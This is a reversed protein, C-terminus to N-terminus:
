RKRRGRRKRRNGEAKERGEESRKAERRWVSALGLGFGTAGVCGVVASCFLNNKKKRVSSRM